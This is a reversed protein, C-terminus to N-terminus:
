NSRGAVSHSDFTYLLYCRDVFILVGSIDCSYATSDDSCTCSNYPTQLVVDHTKEDQRLFKFSYSPSGRKVYGAKKGGTPNISVSLTNEDKPHAASVIPRGPEIQYFFSFYIESIQTYEVILLLLKNVHTKYNYM